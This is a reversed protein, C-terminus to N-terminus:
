SRLQLLQLLSSFSDGSIPAHGAGHGAAAVACAAVAASGLGGGAVAGGKCPDEGRRKSVAPSPTTVGGHDDPASNDVTVAIDIHCVINDFHHIVM